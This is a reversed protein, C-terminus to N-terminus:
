HSNEKLFAKEAITLEQQAKEGSQLYALLKKQIKKLLTARVKRINRDTQGRIAAIKTSSFLRIAHLYLLEKDM